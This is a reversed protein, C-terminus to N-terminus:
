HNCFNEFGFTTLCNSTLKPPDDYFLQQDASNPQEQMMISKITLYTRLSFKNGSISLVNEKNTAVYM